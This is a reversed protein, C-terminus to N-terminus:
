NKAIPAPEPLVSNELAILREYNGIVHPPHILPLNKVMVVTELERILRMALVERKEFLFRESELKLSKESLDKYRTWSGDQDVIKKIETTQDNRYLSTVTPHHLNKLEPWAKKLKLALDRKIKGREEDLKKKQETLTARKKKLSEILKKTEEHRNPSSLELRRSLGKIVFKSEKATKMLLGKLPDSVSTFLDNPDCANARQNTKVDKDKSLNESIPNTKSDKSGTKNSDIKEPENPPSLASFHRLFVDSTKIPVDITDSRLVVYAHAEALSTKGDKNLDPQM